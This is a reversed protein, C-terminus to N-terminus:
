LKASNEHIFMFTPFSDLSTKYNQYQRAIICLYMCMCMTPYMPTYFAVNTYVNFGLNYFVDLCTKSTSSDFGSWLCADVVGYLWKRYVLTSMCHLRSFEILSYFKKMIEQVLNFALIWPGCVYVHM